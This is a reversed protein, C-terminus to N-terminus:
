VQKFDSPGHLKLFTIGVVEVSSDYKLLRFLLYMVRFTFLFRYDSWILPLYQRNLLYFSGLHSQATIWCNQLVGQEMLIRAIVFKPGLLEAIKEKETIVDLRLPILGVM